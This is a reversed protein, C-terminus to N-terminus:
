LELVDMTETISEEALSSNFGIWRIMDWTEARSSAGVVAVDKQTQAYDRLQQSILARDQRDPGAETAGSFSFRQLGRARSIPTQRIKEQLYEWEVGSLVFLREDLGRTIYFREGLGERFKAPVIIRGKPDTNHQYEGISM